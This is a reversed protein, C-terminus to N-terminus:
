GKPLFGAFSDPPTNRFVGSQERATIGRVLVPFRSLVAAPAQWSLTMPNRLPRQRAPMVSHPRMWRFVATWPWRFMAPKPCGSVRFVANRIRAHKYSLSASDLAHKSVPRVHAALFCAAPQRPHAAATIPRIRVSIPMKMARMMPVALLTRVPVIREAAAFATPVAKTKSAIISAAAQGMRSRLIQVPERRRTAPEQRIANIRRRARWLIAEM